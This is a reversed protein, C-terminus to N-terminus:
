SKRKSGTWGKVRRQIGGYDEDGNSWRDHSCPRFGPHGSDAELRIHFGLDTGSGYGWNRAAVNGTESRQGLFCRMVLWEM